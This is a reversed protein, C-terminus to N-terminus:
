LLKQIETELNQVADSRKVIENERNILFFTPLAQVGYTKTATGNTEHVCIWPLNEVSFQWFHIDDDLSVQYIELGREHYKDYLERMMRTRVASDKGGYMTFDLLVVKGKLGSLTHLKSHIDPLEMDIIGTETIKSEDIDIARQQRPATNEMGRIAAQCIRETRPADHYLGDWATAITAYCKVDERSNMPDFLLHTGFLDTISQCVAYYAYAEQPAKFIYDNRMKEKYSRVLSDIEDAKDGPLMEENREIAVVKRQLEQQLTHIEKIKLASESGEVEYDSMMTPYSARLTVTETSDISFYIHKRGVRLMYFEPTESRNRRFEFKGDEKLRVSDIAEFVNDLNMVEMYLTSDKAGGISGQVCFQPQRDCAALTLIASIGLLFKKM